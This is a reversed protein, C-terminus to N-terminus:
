KSKRFVEKVAKNDQEMSDKINSTNDNILKAMVGFEDNSKLSIAKPNDNKHNLFDFFDKLGSQIIQIPKLFRKVLIYIILTALIIFTISIIINKYLIDDTKKSFFDIDVNSCIIWDNIGFSVCRGLKKSGDEHTYPLRGYEDVNNAKYNKLIEKTANLTKGIFDSNPHMILKANKDMLLMYAGEANGLENFEKQIGDITFDAGVVYLLKNDKYFPTAATIIQKKTVNDIYPETILTKRLNAAEQYWNQKRPDYEDTPLGSNGDSAVIMGNDQYAIYMAEFDMSSNINKLINEVEKYDYNNSSFLKSLNEIGVIAKKFQTDLLM